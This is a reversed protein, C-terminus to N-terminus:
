ERKECSIRIGGLSCFLNVFDKSKRFIDLCLDSANSESNILKYLSYFDKWLKIVTTKTEPFLLIDLAELKEPLLKMM